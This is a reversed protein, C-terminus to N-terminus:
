AVADICYGGPSGVLRLGGLGSFIARGGDGSVASPGQCLVQPEKLGQLKMPFVPLLDLLVYPSSSTRLSARVRLLKEAIYLFAIEGHVLVELTDRQVFDLLDSLPNSEAVLSRLALSIRIVAGEILVIPLEQHDVCGSAHFLM